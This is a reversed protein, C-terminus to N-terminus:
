LSAVNVVVVLHDTVIYINEQLAIEPPITSLAISASSLFCPSKM